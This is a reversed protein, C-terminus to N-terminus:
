KLMFGHIYRCHFPAHNGRLKLFLVIIPSKMKEIFNRIKKDTHSILSLNSTKISSDVYTHLFLKLATNEVKTPKVDSAIKVSGLYERLSIM